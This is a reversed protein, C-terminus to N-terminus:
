FFIVILWQEQLCIKYPDLAANEAKRYQGEKICNRMNYHGEVM